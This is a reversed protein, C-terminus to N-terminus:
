KMTPMVFDARVADAEPWRQTVTKLRTYFRFGEAGYAHHDGFMSNRWGGFSHFAMPVPIPVNVGVMGVEVESAFARAVAGSQTFVATGNAYEHANVLELAARYDPVRVVALVPGFIEERYIRMEPRVADFLTPGLFFGDGAAASHSRGDLVLKAGERAGIDIYERVRALHAPTVLPGMEVGAADSAGIRLHALRLKLRELLADAVADGVAVAVSIAMCREGASGYAAGILAETTAALDADPMVVMHNKAGGLAQVRKGSATARRQLERAVATSGVFSVAAIQPHDLLADVAEKDGHVVNLVGPPLGAETLLAALLLSASPDRESPKLVFSNGCALAIPFMWMPVMAPFNFPTVGAVVGLPQRLSYSDVGRGVNDSFEGKLLQPAGCAFEVVEIGRTVEGLADDVTKGHEESIARAIRKADRDLLEKFRFLVRARRLPSHHSWDPFARAASSVARDVEARTALSVERVVRGLSPNYVPAVRGSGAVPKGDIWHSITSATTVPQIEAPVSM